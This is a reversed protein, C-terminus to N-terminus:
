WKPEGPCTEAMYPHANTKLTLIPFRPLAVSVFGDGNIQFGWPEPRMIPKEKKETSLNFQSVLQQRVQVDTLPTPDEGFTVALPPTSREDSKQHAPGGSPWRDGEAAGFLARELINAPLQRLM